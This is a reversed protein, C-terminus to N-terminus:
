RNLRHHYGEIDNNSRISMMYVTWSKPKFVRHVIWQQEVYNMFTQLKPQEPKLKKKLTEFAPVIQEHPLYPLSMVKKIYTYTAGYRTYEKQLLFCIM